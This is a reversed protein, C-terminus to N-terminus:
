KLASVTQVLAQGSQPNKKLVHRLCQIAKDYQGIGNLAM